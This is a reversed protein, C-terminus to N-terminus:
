STIIPLKILLHTGKNIRSEIKVQGHHLEVIQKVITLGLGSGGHEPSRSKEIRYFQSFVADTEDEPIGPGSNFLDILCNKNKITAKFTISSDKGGSYKISNDIINILMRRIKEEDAFLTIREQVDISLQIGVTKIIEGFDEFLHEILEKLDFYDPKYSTKLELASLDLLNKVLRDMRFLTKNHKIIKEHTAPSLDDNQMFDEFFLRLMTIPTKLEHSANAIFETQRVFSYQLRDFMTNLSSSLEYLEDHNEGLPIRKDLTKDNILQATKNITSIPQLIRGAVFYGILLLVMASGIFGLLLATLLEKMQEDFRDMPRAIQVIYNKDGASLKLIRVRFATRDRDIEVGTQEEPVVKSKLITTNVSYSSRNQRFPLDVLSVMDSSYILQQQTDFVKIWYLKDLWSLVTEPIGPSNDSLNLRTIVGQAHNELDTEVLEVPEDALDFYVAASFTLSALLGAATIM